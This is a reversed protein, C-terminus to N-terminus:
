FQGYIGMSVIIKKVLELLKSSFKQSLYKSDNVSLSKVLVDLSSYMFQMSSIFVLIKSITFAVIKELRNPIVSIKVDYKGIGQMILHSNYEKM